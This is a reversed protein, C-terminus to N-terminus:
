ENEKVEVPEEITDIVNVYDPTTRIVYYLPSKEIVDGTIAIHEGDQPYNSEDLGEIIFETGIRNGNEDEQVISYSSMVHSVDGEIFVVQGTAEGNQIMKSLNFMEDYDGYDITMDINSYDVVIVGSGSDDSGGGNDSSKNNGIIVGVIIAVVVVAAIAIGIILNKNNKAM